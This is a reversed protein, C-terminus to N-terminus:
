FCNSVTNQQVAGHESCSNPQSHASLLRSFPALLFLLLCKLLLLFKDVEYTLRNMLQGEKRQQLGLLLERAGAEGIQNGALTLVQVERCSAIWRCTAGM